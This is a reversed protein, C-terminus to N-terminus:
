GHKENEKEEGQDEYEEEMSRMKRRRGKSRM